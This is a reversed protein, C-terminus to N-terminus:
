CLAALTDVSIIGAYHSTFVHTITNERGYTSPVGKRISAAM